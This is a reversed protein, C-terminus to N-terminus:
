LVLVKPVHVWNEICYIYQPDPVCYLTMSLFHSYVTYSEKSQFILQSSNHRNKGILGVWQKHSDFCKPRYNFFIIELQRYMSFQGYVQVFIYRKSHMFNYFTKICICTYLKCVYMHLSTTICIYSDTPYVEWKSSVTGTITVTLILTLILTLTLTFALTLTLTLTFSYCYCYCYCHQLRLLLVIILLLCCCCCCCCYYCYCYCYSNCYSFCYCYCYGDTVTVIVSYHVALFILLWM